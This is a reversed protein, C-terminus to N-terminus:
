KMLVMKKTQVFTGAEIKYFYIGSAASTGRDTTGDWTKTHHEAPLNENAILTRVKQGLVNYIALNVTSRVPLDFDISTGPNFPNPYNQGLAFQKPLSLDDVGDVGQAQDWLLFCYGGNAHDYTQGTLGQWGPFYDVLNAGVWKWSGGSGFFSSDVCIHKSHATADHFYVILAIATDNWTTPMRQTGSGAGVYGVSDPTPAGDGHIFNGPGGTITFYLFFRNEGAVIPGASDLLVSDWVAGDPSSVVWGNSVDCKQGTANAGTNDYRFVFRLNQGAMVTDFNHAGEVKDISIMGAAMLDGASLAAILLLGPLLVLLKRKM